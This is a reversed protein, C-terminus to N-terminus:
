LGLYEGIMFSDGKGEEHGFYSVPERSEKEKEYMGIECDIAFQKALDNFFNIPDKIHIKKKASQIIGLQWDEPWESECDNILEAKAHSNDEVFKSLAAQLEPLNNKLKEEQTDELRDTAITIYIFM